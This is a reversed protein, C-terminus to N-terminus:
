EDTRRRALVSLRQFLHAIYGTGPGQNGPRIRVTMGRAGFEYRQGQTTGAPRNFAAILDRVADSSAQVLAVTDSEPLRARECRARLRELEHSLDTNTSVTITHRPM